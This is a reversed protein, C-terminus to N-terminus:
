FGFRAVYKVKILEQLNAQTLGVHACWGYPWPGHNELSSGEIRLHM